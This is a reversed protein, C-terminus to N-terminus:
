HFPEWEPLFNAQTDTVVRLDGGTTTIVCVASVDPQGCQFVIQKGDPSWDPFASRTESKTIQRAIGTSVEILYIDVATTRSSIANYALHQGDPSWTPFSNTDNNDTLRRVQGSALDITALEYPFGWQATHFAIQTGDPSWDPGLDDFDNDTIARLGIGDATMAVIEYDGDANSHFAIQSGDPSWTPYKDDIGPSNTLNRANTGDADVVFIDYFGNEETSGYYAIRSGDPSWAPGRAAGPTNTLMRLGTGDADMIYLSLRGSRRSDFAIRTGGAPPTAQNNLNITASDAATTAAALPVQHDSPDPLIGAAYLLAACLTALVLLAGWLLALREPRRSSTQARAAFYRQGRTHSAPEPRSPRFLRRPTPAFVPPSGSGALTPAGQRILTRAAPHLDRELHPRTPPQPAPHEIMPTLPSRTLAASRASFAEPQEPSDVGSAPSEIPPMFQSWEPPRLDAPAGPQEDTNSAAAASPAEDAFMPPAGVAEAFADYFATVSGFRRAPDKELCRLIIDQLALDLRPNLRSPPEPLRNLHEYTVRASQSQGVAGPSDGRFPVQGTLMRYLLVGLAYIDTAVSVLEGRIQEPAMYLPTGVSSRLTLDSNVNLLRAIGFDTVFLTGNEHLLINAPKLDRHIIREAHAYHLASALPTLFSLVAAPRLPGPTESLLEELTRGPIFDMLITMLGDLTLIDYFRVIHPHQLRALVEAERRFRELLTADRAIESRLIKAALPAQRHLDIVRYVEAFTGEGILADVRYREGLTRGLLESSM